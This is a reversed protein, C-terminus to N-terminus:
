KFGHRKHPTHQHLASGFNQSYQSASLAVARLAARGRFAGRLGEHHGGPLLPHAKLACLLFGFSVCPALFFPPFPPSPCGNQGAELMRVEGGM